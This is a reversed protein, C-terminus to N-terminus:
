DSPDSPRSVFNLPRSTCLEQLGMRMKFELYHHGPDISVTQLNPLCQVDMLQRAILAIDPDLGEMRRCDADYRLHLTTISHPYAALHCLDHPTTWISLIRLCPFVNDLDVCQQGDLWDGFPADVCLRELQSCCTILESLQLLALKYAEDIQWKPHALTLDRLRPASQLLTAFLGGALLNGSKVILSQLPLLGTTSPLSWEETDALGRVDVTVLSTCGQAIVRGWNGLACSPEDRDRTSRLRLVKLADPQVLAAIDYSWDAPRGYTTAQIVEPRLESM